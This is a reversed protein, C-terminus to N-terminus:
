TFHDLKTSFSNEKRKNVIQSRPHTTQTFIGTEICFEWPSHMDAYPENQIYRVPEGLLQGTIFQAHPLPKLLM